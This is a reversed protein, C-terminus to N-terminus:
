VDAGKPGPGAVSDSLTHTVRARPQILGANDAVQGLQAIWTRFRRM